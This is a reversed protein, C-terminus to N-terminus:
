AVANIFDYTKQAVRPCTAFDPRDTRQPDIMLAVESNSCGRTWFNVMVTPGLNEVHHWWGAPVYLMEGPHVDIYHYQMSDLRAQDKPSLTKSNPYQLGAWCLSQHKGTCLVPKLNRTQPPPAIFWRKVGAIQYVFNDCCDSHLKTDATSTGMWLTPAQFRNRPLFPPFAADLLALYKPKIMLNRPFNRLTTGKAGKRLKADRELEYLAPGLDLETDALGAKATYALKKAGKSPEYPFRERLEKVTWGKTLLGLHRMHEFKIVVPTSTRRFTDHFEKRSIPQDLHPVWLKHEHSKFYEDHMRQLYWLGRYESARTTDQTVTVAPANEYQQGDSFFFNGLSPVRTSFPGVAVKSAGSLVAEKIRESAAEMAEAHESLDHAAAPDLMVDAAEDTNSSAEDDQVPYEQQQQQQQQQPPPPSQQQQPPPPERDEEGEEQEQEREEADSRQDQKAFLQQEERLLPAVHGVASLEDLEVGPGGATAVATERAGERRLYVVLVLGLLALTALVEGRRPGAARGKVRTAREKHKGAAGANLAAAVPARGIM